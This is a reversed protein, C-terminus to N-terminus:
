AGPLGGQALGCWHCVACSAPYRELDMLSGGTAPVGGHVTTIDLTSRGGEKQLNQRGDRRRSRPARKRVEELWLQKMKGGERGGEKWGEKEENFELGENCVRVM